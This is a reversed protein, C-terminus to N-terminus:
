HHSFCREQTFVMAIQKENCAQIVEFDRISGGPQVIASIGAQAIRDISDRFPFFGDSALVSNELTETGRYKKEAKQIAQEVATIRDQEGTGVAITSLNKALIVANSRVYQSIKWAFLLDEYERETPLRDCTFTEQQTGKEPPFITPNSESHITKNKEKSKETHAPIFNEKSHINSRYVESLLISGDLLVKIEQTTFQTQWNPIQVIRMSANRKFRKSDMLISLASPEYEPAVVMETISTMIELATYDDVPVSLGVVSGFAAQPDTTRAKLYAERLSECLSAGSPNLHKMVVASTGGLSRLIAWAYNMDELNTQSLGEKGTKLLQYDGLSLLSTKPRYLASSQHPNTGYRLEERKEYNKGMWDFQDPFSQFSRTRKKHYQKQFDKMTCKM